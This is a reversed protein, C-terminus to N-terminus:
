AFAPPSLPRFPRQAAIKKRRSRLKAAAAAAAREQKLGAGRAPWAWRGRERACKALVLIMLDILGRGVIKDRDFRISDDDISYDFRIVRKECVHLVLARDLKVYVIIERAM